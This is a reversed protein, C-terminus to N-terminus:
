VGHVFTMESSFDFWSGRNDAYVTCVDPTDSIKGGTMSEYETKVLAAADRGCKPCTTPISTNPFKPEDAGLPDTFQAKSVYTLVHGDGYRKPEFTLHVYDDREYDEIDSDFEVSGGHDRAGGDTRRDKGIAPVRVYISKGYSTPSLVVGLVTTAEDGDFSDTQMAM